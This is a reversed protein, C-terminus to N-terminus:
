VNGLPKDINKEPFGLVSYDVYDEKYDLIKLLIRNFLTRYANSLYIMEREKAEPLTSHAMPNRARIAKNEVDGIKLGIEDFFFQLRENVGLQFTNKM